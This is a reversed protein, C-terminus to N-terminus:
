LNPSLFYGIGPRNLIVRPNHYDVEIKRRLRYVYAKIADHSDRETHLTTRMNTGYIREALDRNTVTRGRAIILEYLLQKESNTLCIRTENYHLENTSSNLSLTRYAIVPEQIEDACRRVLAKVRAILALQGFPKVLYEDAGLSLAKVISSDEERATIVMIPSNSTLRINKIVDFGSIDPLGLDLLIADPAKERLIKLSEVGLSATLVRVEPWAVEFANAIYDLTNEDDDVILFQM